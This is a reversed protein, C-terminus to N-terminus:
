VKLLSYMFLLYLKKTTKLPKLYKRIGSLKNLSFPKEAGNYALTFDSCNSVIHMHQKKSKTVLCCMQAILNYTWVNRYLELSILCILYAM